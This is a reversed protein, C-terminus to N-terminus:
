VEQARLHAAYMEGIAFELRGLREDIGTDVLEAEHWTGCGEGVVSASAALGGVYERYTM